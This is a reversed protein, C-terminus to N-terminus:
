LYKALGKMWYCTLPIPGGEAKAEVKHSHILGCASLKEALFHSNFPTLQHDPTRTTTPRHNPILFLAKFNFKIKWWTLMNISNVQIIFPLLSFLLRQRLRLRGSRNWGEGAGGDFRCLSGVSFVVLGISTSTSSASACLKYFPFSRVTSLPSMWNILVTENICCSFSLLVSNVTNNAVITSWTPAAATPWHQVVQWFSRIGPATCLVLYCQLASCFVLWSCCALSCPLASCTVLICVGSQVCSSSWLICFLATWFNGSNSVNACM